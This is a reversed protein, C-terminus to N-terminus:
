VSNFLHQNTVHKNENKSVDIVSSPQKKQKGDVSYDSCSSVKSVEAGATQVRRKDKDLQM